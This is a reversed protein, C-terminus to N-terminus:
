LTLRRNGPVLPNENPTEIGETKEDRKQSQLRRAEARNANRNRISKRHDRWAECRSQQEKNFPAFKRADKLAQVADSVDGQTYSIQAAVHLVEAYVVNEWPMIYLEYLKNSRNDYPRRPDLAREIYIRAMRLKGSRFYVAAIRAQLRVKINYINQVTTLGPFPGSNMKFDQEDYRWCCSCALSLAAKYGLSAQRLQGRSVQEDAQDLFTMTTHIADMVTPCDRCVSSIIKGKYSGSLPGQVQAAGFSHLQRLPGVLKEMRSLGAPNSDIETTQGNGIAPSIDLYLATMHLVNENETSMSFLLRCFEPLEESCFFYTWPRGDESADVRGGTECFVPDVQPWGALDAPDLTLTM